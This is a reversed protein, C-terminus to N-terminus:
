NKCHLGDILQMSNGANTVDGVADYDDSAIDYLTNRANRSDTGSENFTATWSPEMHRRSEM